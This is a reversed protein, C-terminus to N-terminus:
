PGQRIYIHERINDNLTTTTDRAKPLSVFGRMLLGDLCNASLRWATLQRNTLINCRFFGSPRVTKSCNMSKCLILRYKCSKSLNILM